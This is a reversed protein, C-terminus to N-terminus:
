IIFEKILRINMLYVDFFCLKDFVRNILDMKESIKVQDLIWNKFLLIKKFELIFIYIYLVYYIMEVVKIWCVLYFIISLM